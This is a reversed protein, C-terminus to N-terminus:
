EGKAAPAEGPLLKQAVAWTRWASVAEARAAGESRPDFPLNHKAVERLIEYSRRRVMLSGAELGAILAPVAERGRRRLAADAQQM